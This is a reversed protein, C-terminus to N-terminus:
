INIEAFAFSDEIQKSVGENWYNYDDYNKPFLGDMVPPDLTGDHKVVYEIAYAYERIFAQEYECSIMPCVIQAIQWLLLYVKPADDPDAGLKSLWDRVDDPYEAWGEFLEEMYDSSKLKGCQGDKRIYVLCSIQEMKMAAILLNNLSKPADNRHALYNILSLCIDHGENMLIRKICSRTTPIQRSDYISEKSLSM